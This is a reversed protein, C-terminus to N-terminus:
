AAAALPIASVAFDAASLLRRYGIWRVATACGALGSRVAAPWGAGLNGFRVPAVAAVVGGAYADGAGCLAAGEASVVRQVADWASRKLIVRYGSRSGPECVLTGSEGCTVHVTARPALRGLRAAAWLAGDMTPEVGWGTIKGIEDWSTIVTRTVRLATRSVFDFPLGTTLVLHLDTRGAEAAGALYALVDEDKISNGLLDSCECLWALMALQGSSLGARPAFLGPKFIIKDGGTGFVANRRVRRFGLGRLRLGTFRVRRRLLPGIACADLCRLCAEPAVTKIAVTSNVFGGGCRFEVAYNWLEDPLAAVVKAGPRIDGEAILHFTRSPFVVDAVSGESKVQAGTFIGDVVSEGVTGITQQMADRRYAIRECLGTKGCSCSLQPIDAIM